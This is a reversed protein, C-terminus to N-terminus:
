LGGVLVVDVGDLLRWAVFHYRGGKGEEGWRMRGWGVACVVWSVCGWGGLFIVM